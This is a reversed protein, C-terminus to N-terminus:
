KENSLYYGKKEMRDVWQLHIDKTTDYGMKQLLNLTEKVIGRHKINLEDLPANIGERSYLHHHKIDCSL